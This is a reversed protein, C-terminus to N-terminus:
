GHGHHGPNSPPEKDKGRPPGAGPSVLPRDSKGARGPAIHSKGRDGSEGSSRMAQALSQAAQAPLTGSRILREVAAPLNRLDAADGHRAAWAELLAVAQNDPVGVQHLDALTEVPLAMSRVMHRAHLMRVARESVGRRLADAVATIDDPVPPAGNELLSRARGLNTALENVVVLIREPPAKKAEGELTKDILPATPLGRAAAQSLIQDFRGAAARPLGARAREVRGADQASARSAGVSALLAALALLRCAPLRHM